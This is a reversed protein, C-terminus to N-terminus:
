ADERYENTEAVEVVRVKPNQMVTQADKSSEWMKRLAEAMAQARTANDFELDIMVYNQDDKPRLIRYRRVGSKERKLPDTDFMKKWAEFNGVAHEIRVITTTM